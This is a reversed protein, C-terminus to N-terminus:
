WDRANRVYGFECGMYARTLPFYLMHAIRTFPIMALWLAGTWMHVIVITNYNFVQYYAMLGTAFPAAVLGVLIFDGASTVFRVTPDAIRRLFFTAAGVLVIITMAKSVFNPLSWWSIGWSERWLAVHGVTFIPVAFLCIHFAFSLLTFVPRMRMNRAAFPVSWHLLSRLGFSWKMYPLVVKDRRALRITSVVRYVSGILLIGFAIWVLPGRSFEYM